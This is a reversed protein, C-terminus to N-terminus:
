EVINEIVRINRENLVTTLPQVEAGEEVTTLGWTGM